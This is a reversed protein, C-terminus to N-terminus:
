TDLYFLLDGLQTRAQELAATDGAAEADRIMEMLDIM